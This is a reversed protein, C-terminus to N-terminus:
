IVGAPSKNLVIECVKNVAANAADNLAQSYSGGLSMSNRINPLLM